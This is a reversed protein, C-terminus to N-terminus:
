RPHAQTPIMVHGYPTGSFMVYPGGQERTTPLGKLDAPNVVLLMIHPGDHGWHNDAEPGTAFPDTTSGMAGGPALMYGIGAAAPRPAEGKLYAEVFGIWQADVCMPDNGETTPMDPLCTWGNNGERLVTLPQGEGAPWDMIKAAGSIFDPAATIANAIKEEPRPAASTSSSQAVAIAPLGLILLPVAM